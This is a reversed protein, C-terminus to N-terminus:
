KKAKEPKAPNAQELECESFGMEESHCDLKVGYYTGADGGVHTITGYSGEALGVKVRVRDMKCFLSKPLSM